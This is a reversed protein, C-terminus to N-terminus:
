LSRANLISDRCHSQETSLPLQQRVLCGSKLGQSGRLLLVSLVGSIQGRARMSADHHVCVCM